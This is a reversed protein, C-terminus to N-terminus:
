NNYSSMIHEFEDESVNIIELGFYFRKLEDLNLIHRKEEEAIAYIQVSQKKRILKLIQYNSLSDSSVDIIKRGQFKKLESLNSIYSKFRGNILFIKNSEGRLLSGDPYMELGLVKPKDSSINKEEGGSKLLSREDQINREEVPLQNILPLFSSGSEEKDRDTANVTTSSAEANQTEISLNSPDTSITGSLESAQAQCCFIFSLSFFTFIFRMIKWNSALQNGLRAEM